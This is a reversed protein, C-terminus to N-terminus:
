AHSVAPESTRPRTAQPRLGFLQRMFRLRRVGVEYIAITIAFALLVLLIFKPGVGLQWTVVFSALTLVVPHHIVYFPLVSEKAYNLVRSPRNLWRLGVYLVALNWAWIEYAWFLAFLGQEPIVQHPLALLNFRLSALMIGAGLTSVIGAGLVWRIDRRIATEFGRNSFLIAGMAFVFVYTAVDAWDQYAPFLPRLVLQSLVLPAALVLLGCRLDAVRVLWTTARVGGDRRLWVLLPLCAASVAFLYGLFWLHLFYKSIWEPDPQFTMSTFFHAYFSPLETLPPPPNHSSVFRQYPSLLVLGLAMPLLLRLGRKWLFQRPTSSRLGFYADAGAILFMAPIGWPFCFGAFASLALSREQNSVLWGNTAFVLSVHFLLIGYVIVVKLWDLYHIRPSSV